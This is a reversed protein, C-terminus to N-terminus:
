KRATALYESPTMFVVNKARLYAIIKEFGAWREDTWANPHGQLVLVPAKAGSREYIEQFKKPDPVFTPNELAMIRELSLGRFFKPQRPGYLWIKVEPTQSLAEDTADTTGSWHPGFAVLPFGLKALALAESKAFIARQEAATGVEFEGHKEEATRNRYGHLWIEIQGAAQLDKIWKFYAPNDKELSYCIVGFSGKIRQANLYDVLKQWRPSVPANGHAGNTTVDDFKLVVVQPKASAAPAAEAATASAFIGAFALSCSAFRALLARRTLPM